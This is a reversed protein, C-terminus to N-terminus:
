RRYGGVLRDTLVSENTDLRVLHVHARLCPPAPIGEAPFDEFEDDEDVITTPKKTPLATLLAATAAAPPKTKPTSM